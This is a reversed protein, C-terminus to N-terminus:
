RGHDRRPDLERIHAEYEWRAAIERAQRNDQAHVAELSRCEADTLM